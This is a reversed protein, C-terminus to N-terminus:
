GDVDEWAAERPPLPSEMADTLAAAIEARAGTELRDAESESLIRDAVVATKFTVVPDRALWEEAEEKTRYGQTDGAFHGEFRYCTAVVLSPGEGRRAAEVREGVARYVELVDMGDVTEGPFGLGDARRSLDPVGIMASARGSMAFQNNECVFVLPLGWIAAMNGVELFAGQNLAADGIFCLVVEDSGRMSASLAAGGAIGIGGGVIGNAGLMGISFDAIHMSGGKGRCYGGERGLLEAMMRRVDGGKGITHAHGRHTSTILDTPRLAACAGVAVAEQGIAPHSSGRSLGENYLRPLLLEFERILLMKRLMEVALDPAIARDGSMSLAGSM